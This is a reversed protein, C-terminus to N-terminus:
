TTPSAPDASWVFTWGSRDDVYVIAAPERVAEVRVVREKPQPDLDGGPQVYLALAAAAGLAAPITLWRLWAAFAPKPEEHLTRQLKRWEIMPDPTRLATAEERLLTGVAMLRAQLQRCHACTSVHAALSARGEQDIAGDRELNLLKEADHCNM